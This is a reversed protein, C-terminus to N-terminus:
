ILYDIVMRDTRFSFATKKNNEATKDKRGDCPHNGEPMISCLLVKSFHLDEVFGGLVKVHNMTFHIM